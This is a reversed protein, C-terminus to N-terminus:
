GQPAPGIPLTVVARLGPVADTRDLLQVRGGHNRVIDRVIPLGLGTGGTDRSRSAQVRYFRDFVREREAAPIGPGDDEVVLEAVPRGADQDPHVDVTIVDTAYRVANNILNVAVRRLAEPDGSIVVPRTNARVAVRASAYGAVVTTVLQDLRVPERRTQGASEDLRALSLLDEVLRDLRDVDVLVDRIVDDWDVEPGLRQAVELQVRLSALPSRLEHAADGVFTRQRSTASDIRDLMANLTAALRQIEDDARRVPLRQEPLGAATIAAARRRMAAVPRLTLAVVGYTALGFLLVALPSGVLAARTLLNQSDDVRTVDNAVLVTNPGVPRGLVRLKTDSTPSIELRDGARVARLQEPTLLHLVYTSGTSAALVRDRRDVVQAGAVATTPVITRPIGHTRVQTALAKAARNASQDLTRYLAVRQLVVLLVAGTIVAFSFLATALLTLRARLSQRAWWQQPWRLARAVLGRV